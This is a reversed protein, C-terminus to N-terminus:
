SIWYEILPASETWLWPWSGSYYNVNPWFPGVISLDGTGKDVYATEPYCGLPHITANGWKELIQIWHNYGSTSRSATNTLDGVMPYQMIGSVATRPKEMILSQGVKLYLINPAQDASITIGWATGAPDWVEFTSLHLAWIDMESRDWNGSGHPAYDVRLQEWRWVATDAPVNPDKSKQARFGYIVGADFSINANNHNMEGTMHFDDYYPEFPMIGGPTGNPYNWGNAVGGWYLWRALLTDEGYGVRWIRMSVTGDGNDFLVFYSNWWGEKWTYGDDCSSIDLRGKTASSGGEGIMFTNDWYNRVTDNHRESYTPAYWDDWWAIPNSEALPLGILQYAADRDMTVNIQMLTEWGDYASEAQAYLSFASPYLFNGQDVASWTMHVDVGYEKSAKPSPNNINWYYFESYNLYNYDWTFSMNGGAGTNMRPFFTPDQMSVETLNRAEVNVRYTTDINSQILNGTTYLNYAPADYRFPQDGWKGRWAENWYSSTHNHVSDWASGLTLQMFDYVRIEITRNAITVFTTGNISDDAQYEATINYSSNLGAFNCHAIVNAEGNILAISTNLGVWGYASRNAGVDVTDTATNVLNGAGDVAKINITISEGPFASHRSVSLSLAVVQDTTVSIVNTMNPSTFGGSDRVKLSVTYKGVTAWSHTVAVGYGAASGDGFDWTYNAITRSTNFSFSRAGSLSIVENVAASDPMIIKACLDTQIGVNKLVNSGKLGFNDTVNLTVVFNDMFAFNHTIIPSATSIVMGDKFDWNYMSVSGDPDYSASADFLVPVQMTGVAVPSAFSATPPLNPTINLMRRVTATHGNATVTLNLTVNAVKTWTHSVTPASTDFTTGDGFEWHNNTITSNVGYGKSALTVAANLSVFNNYYEHNSDKVYTQYTPMSIVPVPNHQAEPQTNVVFEINPVGRPLLNLRSWNEQLETAGQSNKSWGWADFPGKMEIKRASWNIILNSPVEGPIPEIWLPDVHGTINSSTVGMGAPYFGKTLESKPWEITWTDNASLNGAWPLYDFPTLTNYFANTVLFNWYGPTYAYPNEESTTNIWHNNLWSIPQGSVYISQFGPAADAHTMEWAWCPQGTRSSTKAIMSYDFCSDLNFSSWLPGIAATFHLNDPWGEFTMFTDRWWRGILSEVGWSLYDKITFVINDGVKEIGYAEFLASGPGEYAPYIPVRINMEYLLWQGWKGTFDAFRLTKWTNFNKFDTETMNLVMKAAIKDMTITGNLRFFWSDYWIPIQGGYTDAEEKNIYRGHWDLLINGGRIRSDPNTIPVYVPNTMTNAKSINKASVNMRYNTYLWDNGTPAGAWIYAVPYTWSVVTEQYRDKWFPALSNNFLNYVRTHTEPDPLVTLITLPANAVASVSAYSGTCTLNGVISINGSTFNTVSGATNTLTGLSSNDLAWTYTANVQTGNTLYAEAIFMSTTNILMTMGPPSISVYDLKAIGIVVPTTKNCWFDLHNEPNRFKFSWNLASTGEMNAKLQWYKTTGILGSTLTAIEPNNAEWKVTVAISVSESVNWPNNDTTSNKFNEYAYIRLTSGNAMNISSPQITVDLFPKEAVGGMMLVAFATAILAIVVVISIIMLLPSKKPPEIAPKSIDETAPAKMEETEVEAQKDSM